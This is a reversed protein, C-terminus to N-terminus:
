QNDEEDYHFVVSIVTDEQREDKNQRTKQVNEVTQTSLNSQNAFKNELMTRVAHPNYILVGQPYGLLRNMSENLNNGHENIEGALLSSHKSM